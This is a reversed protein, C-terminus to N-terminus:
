RVEFAGSPARSPLWIAFRAGGLPSAEARIRGHHAEIHRRVTALGLGTGSEKTTFFPEFVRERDADAIGPGSDDVALQYGASDARLSLEVRRVVAGEVAQCANVLLNWLVQRLLVADGMVVASVVGDAMRAELTIGHELVPKGTQCAALTEGILAVLNCPATQLRRPRAFDLFEGIWSSLQATERVVIQMLAAETEGRVDAQQLLQVSGSIAALPNRIEHAVAAAMTGIAAMRERARHEAERARVVTQDRLLVLVGAADAPGRLPVVRCALLQERGNRATREIRQTQSTDIPVRRAFEHESAGGHLLSALEPVVTALARGVLAQAPQQLIQEAAPNVSAIAGDADLTLVGDPLCSVVDEYRVQLAALARDQAASQVDARDLEGVLHATLMAIGFAAGVHLVLVSGVEFGDLPPRPVHGGSLVMEGAPLVVWGLEDAALVAAGCAVATAAVLGGPRGRLVAANLVALPLGFLFLSQLGDTVHVLILAMCVDVAVAAWAVAKLLAARHRGLQTLLLLVFSAAYTVASLQYLQVQSPPGGQEHTLGLDAVVGFALVATTVLVQALTAWKIREVLRPAERRLAPDEAEGAGRQREDAAAANM